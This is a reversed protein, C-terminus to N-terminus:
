CKQRRVAVAEAHMRLYTHPPFAAIALFRVSVTCQFNPFDNQQWKLTSVHNADADCTNVTFQTPISFESATLQAWQRDACGCMVKFHIFNHCECSETAFRAEADSFSMVVDTSRCITKYLSSPAM